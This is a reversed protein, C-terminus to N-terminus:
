SICIPEESENNWSDGVKENFEPDISWMNSYKFPKNIRQNGNEWNIMSPSHDFLGDTMYHVM